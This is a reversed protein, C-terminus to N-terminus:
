CRVHVTTLGDKDIITQANDEKQYQCHPSLIILRPVAFKAEATYLAILCEATCDMFFVRVSM